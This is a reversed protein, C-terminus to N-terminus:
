PAQAAGAVHDPERSAQLVYKKGERRYLSELERSSIRVQLWWGGDEATEESLIEGTQYIAARLRGAGPPLQLWGRVQDSLFFENLSQELLEIGEGSVASCWLRTVRGEVDRIMNNNMNVVFM